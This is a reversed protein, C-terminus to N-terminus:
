SQAEALALLAAGIAGADPGLAAPVIPVDPRFESAEISALFHRRTPELLLDGAEVVGGGIVVIEPDLVNVLGAIGEGLRRGVEGLVELATTDGGRALETIGTGSPAGEGFAERSLREIARGSAVTEWCGRNGCGCPPGDPEVIIHGVEGAFGHSGHLLHGGSVIGAGIGTGVTLMLVHDRGRGAGLRFEGWTAVNADNDAVCPLGTAASIRAAVQLNRWALNPAFVVVGDGVMGAVGAGVASVDDSTVAAVAAAASVLMGDVDDAPTSVVERALINGDADVRLALTKTGGIDLGVAQMM